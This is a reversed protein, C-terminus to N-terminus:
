YGHMSELSKVGAVRELLSKTLVLNLRANVMQERANALLSEAQVLSLIDAKGVKYEGFAESYNHEAQALQEKAVLLANSATIFDQYTQNVDLLLQRKLENLNELSVESEVRSSKFTFFKGLEFINWTALIAAIKEENFSDRLVDGGTKSYSAALSISPFFSSFIISENNKSISILDEAQRIEPRKLTAAYLRDIDPPTIALDLSGQIEDDAGPPKGILSNLESLAKQYDGEAQVLNFKAQQLRVSAQLKDSLRAVGFKYRGEAVEFDKQADRVQIERQKVTEARAIVTYFATKVNFELDLLSKRLDEKSIQLNLDSINRSAKRNGADFLIYSLTMDYTRGSLEGNSTYLRQLSASADLRPIYPSLSAEHLAESSKVRLHSARYSPLTERALSIAEEVTLSLSPRSLFVVSLLCLFLLNKALLFRIGQPM